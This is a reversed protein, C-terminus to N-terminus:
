ASHGPRVHSRSAKTGPMGSSRSKGTKRDRFTTKGTTRSSAGAGTPPTAVPLPAIVERALEDDPDMRAEGRVDGLRDGELVLLSDLVQSTIEDTRGERELFEDVEVAVLGHEVAGAHVGRKPSVDLRHVRHLPQGTEGVVDGIRASVAGVEVGVVGVADAALPRALSFRAVGALRLRRRPAGARRGPGPENGLHELRIREDASAASPREPHHGVYGVRERDPLDQFVEVEAGGLLRRGFDAIEDAHRHVVLPALDIELWGSSDLAM